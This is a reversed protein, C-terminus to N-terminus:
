YPGLEVPGLLHIVGVECAKATVLGPPGMLELPRMHQLVQPSLRRGPGRPSDPLTPVLGANESCEAGERRVGGHSELDMQDLVM